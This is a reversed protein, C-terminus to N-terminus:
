FLKVPTINAPIIDNPKGPLYYAGFISFRKKLCSKEPETFSYYLGSGHDAQLIIIHPTKSSKLIADVIM